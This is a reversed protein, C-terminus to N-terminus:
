LHHCQRPGAHEIAWLPHIGQAACCAHRHRTVSYSFYTKDDHLSVNLPISKKGAHSNNADLMYFICDGTILVSSMDVEFFPVVVPTFCLYGFL